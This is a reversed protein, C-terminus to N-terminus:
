SESLEDFSFNDQVYKAIDDLDMSEEETERRPYGIVRLAEEM